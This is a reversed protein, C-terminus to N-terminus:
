SIRDSEDSSLGKTEVDLFSSFIFSVANNRTLHLGTNDAESSIGHLETYISEIIQSFLLTTWFYKHEYACYQKDTEFNHAM